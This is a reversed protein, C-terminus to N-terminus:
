VGAAIFCTCKVKDLGRAQCRSSTLGRLDAAGCKRIESSRYADMICQIRHTLTKETPVWSDDAVDSIGVRAELAEIRALLGDELMKPRSALLLFGRTDKDRHSNSDFRHFCRM